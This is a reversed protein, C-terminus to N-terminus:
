QITGDVSNYWSVPNSYNEAIWANYDEIKEGNVILNYDYNGQEDNEGHHEGFCNEIVGNESIELTYYYADGAGSSGMFKGDKQLNQFERVSYSFGYVTGASESLILYRGGGLVTYLVFEKDDDSDLDILTFTFTMEPHEEVAGLLEGFYGEITKEQNDSDFDVFFHEGSLVPVYVELASYDEASLVSQFSEWDVNLMVSDVSDTNASESDIILNDNYDKSQINCASLFLVALMGYVGLFRKM